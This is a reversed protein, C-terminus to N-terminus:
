KSDVSHNNPSITSLEMEPTVHHFYDEFMEHDVIARYAACSDKSLSEMLAAWQTNKPTESPLLTSLLTASACTELQGEAVASVGFKAQVM